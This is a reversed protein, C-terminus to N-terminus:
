KKILADYNPNLSNDNPVALITTPEYWDRGMFSKALAIAEEITPAVVLRNDILWVRTYTYEEM